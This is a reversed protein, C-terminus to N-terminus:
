QPRQDSQPSETTGKIPKYEFGGILRNDGFDIISAGLQNQMREIDKSDDEGLYNERMDLIKLKSLRDVDPIDNFDNKRLLLYEIKLNHSLDLETLLNGECDIDILAPNQSVDLHTLKSNRCIIWALKPNKSFDLHLNKKGNMHFFRFLAPNDSLDLTSLEMNDMYLDNLRHLNKLQIEDLKMGGLDLKELKTNQSLDIQTINMNGIALYNLQKLPSFDLSQIAPLDCLSLKELNPMQKLDLRKINAKAIRLERLQRLNSWDIADLPNNELVLKRLHTNKRLDIRNVHSNYLCFEKLHTFNEIGKFTSINVFDGQIQNGFSYPGGFQFAGEFQAAEKRNLPDHVKKQVYERFVPDPISRPTLISQANRLSAPIKGYPTMGVMGILLVVHLFYSHFFAGM